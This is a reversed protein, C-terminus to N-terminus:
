ILRTVDVSKRRIASINANLFFFGCATAFFFILERDDAAPQIVDTSTMEYVESLEGNPSRVDRHYEMTGDAKSIENM